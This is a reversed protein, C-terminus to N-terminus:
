LSKSRFGKGKLDEIIFKQLAVYVSGTSGTLGM